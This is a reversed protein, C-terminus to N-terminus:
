APLFRRAKVIYHRAGAIPGDTVKGGELHLVFRQFGNATEQLKTDFDAKFAPDSKLAQQGSPSTLVLYAQAIRLGLRSLSTEAIDLHSAALHLTNEAYDKQPQHSMDTYSSYFAEFAGISMEGRMMGDQLKVYEKAVRGRRDEITDMVPKLSPGSPYTIAAALFNEATQHAYPVYAVHLNTIEDAVDQAHPAFLDDEGLESFGYVARPSRMLLRMRRQAQESSTTLLGAEHVIMGTHVPEIGDLVDQLPMSISLGHSLLSSEVLVVLEPHRYRKEALATFCAALRGYFSSATAFRTEIDALATRDIM